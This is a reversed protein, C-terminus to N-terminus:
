AVPEAPVEIKKFAAVIDGSRGGVTNIAVAMDEAFEDDIETAGNIAAILEDLLSAYDGGNRIVKIAEVFLEMVDNTEEARKVTVDKIM